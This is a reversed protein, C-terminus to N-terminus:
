KAMHKKHLSAKYLAVTEKFQEANLLARMSDVCGARMAALAAEQKGIDEILARREPTDGMGNMLAERLQLRTNALKDEAAERKAPMTKLWQAFQEQQAADLKLATEHQKIIPVLAIVPEGLNYAPREALATHLPAAFGLALTAILATRKFHRQAFTPM